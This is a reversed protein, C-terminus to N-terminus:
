HMEQFAIEIHSENLRKAIEKHSENLHKKQSIKLVDWAMQRHLRKVLSYCYNYVIFINKDNM